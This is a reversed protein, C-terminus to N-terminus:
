SRSSRTSARRALAPRPHPSSRPAGPREGGKKQGLPERLPERPKEFAFIQFRSAFFQWIQVAADQAREVDGACGKKGWTPCACSRRVRALSLSRLSIEACRARGPRTNKKRERARCKALAPVTHQNDADFCCHRTLDRIRTKPRNPASFFFTYTSSTM